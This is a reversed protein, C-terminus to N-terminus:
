GNKRSLEVGTTSVYYKVLMNPQEWAPLTQPARLYDFFRNAVQAFHKEHGVRLREPIVLRAAGGSELVGLGPYLEQLTDVKQRLAALVAAASTAPEPVVYIEPVFSEASGQRLEIRSNSGRFKAEYVDGSSQSAEWNWLINLKVHTGRVTYHVFNNCYYQLTEEQVYPSLFGPFGAEGTVRQFDSASLVTPWHRAGLVGIDTRYDFQDNPFAIWQVLDVIHTGVDALGEGAENVDFFWAPRRLPVGAVVKMLHHISHATIAPEAESGAILRGFIAEDNVLQRQLLSTIEFRETMIDFAVRGQIRAEELVQELAPLSSPSIIWPKDALVHLGAGICARIREIKPRSRGALVAVSGPYERLMQNFFNPGTHVELEWATPDQQRTNFLSIRTLYDLVDPGLPAYVSVQNSLEPYMEKQVLAAHFHGPDLVILKM